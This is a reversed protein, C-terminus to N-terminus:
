QMRILVNFFIMMLSVAVLILLLCIGLALMRVKRQIKATDLQELGTVATKRARNEGKAQQM